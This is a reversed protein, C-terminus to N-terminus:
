QQEAIPGWSDYLSDLYIVGKTDLEAEKLMREVFEPIRKRQRYSFRFLLGNNARIHEEKLLDNERQRKFRQLINNQSGRSVNIMGNLTFHQPGDSEIYIERTGRETTVVMDWFLTRGGCKVAVEPTYQINDISDLTKCLKTMCKNRFMNCHPCWNHNKTIDSIRTSFEKSCRDCDFLVKKRSFMFYESPPKPNKESFCTVKEPDFSAFSKSVCVQCNESEPCLRKNKCYPCGTKDSVERLTATYEHKCKKCNFIAKAHSGNFVTQPTKTNKGSWDM